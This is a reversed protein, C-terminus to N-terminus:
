MAISSFSPLAAHPDTTEHQEQDHDRRTERRLRHHGDVLGDIAPQLVAGTEGLDFRPLGTGSGDLGPATGGFQRDHKAKAGNQWLLAEAVPRKRDLGKLPRRTAPAM